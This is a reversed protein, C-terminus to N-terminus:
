KGDYNVFNVFKHNVFRYIRNMTKALPRDFHLIPLEQRYNSSDSALPASSPPIRAVKYIPRADVLSLCQAIKRFIQAIKRRILNRDDKL